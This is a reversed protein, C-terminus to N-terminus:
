LADCGKKRPYVADYSWLRTMVPHNHDFESAPLQLQVVDKTSVEQHDGDNRRHTHSRDRAEFRTEPKDAVRSPTCPEHWKFLCRKHDLSRGRLTLIADAGLWIAVSRVAVSERCSPPSDM